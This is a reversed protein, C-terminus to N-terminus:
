ARTSGSAKRAGKSCVIFSRAPLLLCSIEGTCGIEIKLVDVLAKLCQEGQFRFILYFDGVVVAIKSGNRKGLVYPEMGSYKM